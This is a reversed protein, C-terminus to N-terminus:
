RLLERLRATFEIQIVGISQLLRQRSTNTITILTQAWRGQLEEMALNTSCNEWTNALTERLVKGGCIPFFLLCLLLLLPKLLLPRMLSRNFFIFTDGILM